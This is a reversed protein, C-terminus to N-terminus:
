KWTQEMVPLARSRFCTLITLAYSTRDTWMSDAESVPQEMQQLLEFTKRGVISLVHPGVREFHCQLQCGSQTQCLRRGTPVTRADPRTYGASEHLM